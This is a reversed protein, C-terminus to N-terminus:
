DKKRISTPKGSLTRAKGSKDIFTKKIVTGEDDFNGTRATTKAGAESSAVTKHHGKNFDSADQAPAGTDKPMDLWSFLPAKPEVKEKERREGAVQKLYDLLRSNYSDGYYNSGDATHEADPHVSETSLLPAAELGAKDAKAQIEAQQVLRDNQVEIPDNEGRVILYDEPLGLLSVLERRMIFGSVPLGLTFDFMFVERNPISEFDMPSKQLPTKRVTSTKILNFRALYKEIKSVMGKELPAVTKLRYNYTKESEALYQKFNM